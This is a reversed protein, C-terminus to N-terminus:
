VEVDDPLQLLERKEQESVKGDLWESLSLLAEAREQPSPPQVIVTLNIPDEAIGLLRRLGPPNNIPLFSRYVPIEMWQTGSFLNRSSILLCGRFMLLLENDDSFPQNSPMSTGVPWVHDFHIRSNELGCQASASYTVHVKGYPNCPDPYYYHCMWTTVRRLEEESGCLFRLPEGPGPKTRFWNKFRYWFRALGPKM